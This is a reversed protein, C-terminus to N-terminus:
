ECQRQSKDIWEITDVIMEGIAVPNWRFSIFVVVVVLLTGIFFFFFFFFGLISFIGQLSMSAQQVNLEEERETERRESQAFPYYDVLSLLNSNLGDVSLIKAATATTKDNLSETWSLNCFRVCM